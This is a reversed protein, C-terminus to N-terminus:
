KPKRKARTKNTSRRAKTPQHEVPAEEAPVGGLIEAEIEMANADLLEKIERPGLGVLAAAMKAGLGRLRYIGAQLQRGYERRWAELRGLEGRRVALLDEAMLAKARRYRADWYDPDLEQDGAAQQGPRGRRRGEYWQTVARISYSGDPQVPFSGDKTKLWNRVTREDVGFAEALEAQTRCFGPRPGGAGPKADSREFAELERIEAPTLTGGKALKEVLALHRRKRALSAV